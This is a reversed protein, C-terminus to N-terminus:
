SEYVMQGIKTSLGHNLIPYIMRDHSTSKYELSRMVGLVKLLPERMSGHAPDADLIVSSAERDLLTAAVTAALDGWRGDGFSVTQSGDTWDYSGAKFATAVTEIYRPSPNSVGFRQILRIAVFPPTNDHYM